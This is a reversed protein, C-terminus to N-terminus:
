RTRFPNPQLALEATRRFEEILQTKQMMLHIKYMNYQQVYNIHSGDYGKAHTFDRIYLPINNSAYVNGEAALDYAELIPNIETVLRLIDSPTIYGFMNSMVGIELINRM